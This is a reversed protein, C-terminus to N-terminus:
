AGYYGFYLTVVPDGKRAILACSLSGFFGCRWLLDLYSVTDTM